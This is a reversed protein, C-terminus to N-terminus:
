GTFALSRVPHKSLDSAFDVCDTSIYSSFRKSSFVDVSKRDHRRLFGSSESDSLFMFFNRQIVLKWPTVAPESLEVTSITIIM